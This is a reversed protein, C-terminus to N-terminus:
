HPGAAVAASHMVIGQARDGRTRPTGPRARVAISTGGRASCGTEARIGARRGAAVRRLDDLAIAGRAGHATPDGRVRKSRGSLWRPRHTATAREGTRPRA